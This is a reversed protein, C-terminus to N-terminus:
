LRLPMVIFKFRQDKMDEVLASQGTDTFSVRMQDSDINNIADLLYTANFGISLGSGELDVEMEERAQENESNHAEILMLNDNIEVNIGKFKENSLISVRTIAAKFANKDLTVARSIEKPLLRQFDPFRGEILKASFQHHDFAVRINNQAIQVRVDTDIDGLLRYAEMVGKRPIIIQRTPSGAADIPEEYLALRHGDSAVARLLNDGVELMLGNLYYRVDQMAMAFMTKEMARRLLRSNVIFESDAANCDFAPYNSGPLTSLTFRSRGCQILLRDQETEIRAISSEPLTRCIDLLKRAPVTIEGNEEGFDAAADTILQVELDTGTLQLRDDTLKMLVNSLIVLTQRKEIVGVVQQLPILLSERSITLKM